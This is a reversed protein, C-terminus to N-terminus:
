PQTPQIDPQQLAPAYNEMGGNPMIQPPPNIGAEARPDIVNPEGILGIEKAIKIKLDTPLQSKELTQNALEAIIANPQPPPPQTQPKDEIMKNPNEINYISGWLQLAENLSLTKGLSAALEQIRPLMQMAELGNMKKEVASQTDGITYIYNGQTVTEDIVGNQEAGSADKYKLNIPKDQFNAILQGIKEVITIIFDSIEDNEYGQLADQGSQTIMAERATRAKADNDGTSYKFRGTAQEKKGELFQLFNIGHNLASQFDLPIPPTPMLAADYEVFGNEKVKIDGRFVGKPTLYCKYISLGLARNIKNLTETTAEVHPVLCSLPPIGRGTRPDVDPAIMVFSNNINPNYTWCAVYKRAVVVIKMNPYLKTEGNETIQIDGQYELCEIQGDKFAKEQEKEIKNNNNESTQNDTTEKLEELDDKSIFKKYLENNAIDSYTVWSKYIKAASEFDEASTDWVFDEPNISKIKVGDFKLQKSIVWKQLDINVGLINQKFGEKRRVNQYERKWNIFVIAEGKKYLNKTCKRFEVKSKSKKLANLIVAKQMYAFQAKENDNGNELEVNIMQSPTKFNANYAHAVMSNFIEKIDADKLVINKDDKKFNEDKTTSDMLDLLEEVKRIMALQPQRDDNWKDFTKVVKGAIEEKYDDNYKVDTDIKQTTIDM